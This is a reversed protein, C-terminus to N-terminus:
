VEGGVWVHGPLVVEEGCLHSLLSIFLAKVSSLLSSKISLKAENIELCAVGGRKRRM